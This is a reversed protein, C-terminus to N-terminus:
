KEENPLRASSQQFVNTALAIERRLELDPLALWHMLAGPYLHHFLAALHAAGLDARIEGAQQSNRIM